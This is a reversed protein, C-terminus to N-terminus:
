INMDDYLNYIFFNFSLFVREITSEINRVMRVLPNGNSNAYAYNFAPEPPRSEVYPTSTTSSPVSLSSSPAKSDNSSSSSSLSANTYSVRHPLHTSSHIHLSLSPTSPTIFTYCSIAM